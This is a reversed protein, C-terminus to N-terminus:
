QNKDEYANNSCYYAYNQVFINANGVNKSGKNHNKKVFGLPSGKSDNAFLQLIRRHNQHDDKSKDKKAGIERFQDEIVRKLFDRYKRHGGLCSILEKHKHCGFIPWIYGQNGDM